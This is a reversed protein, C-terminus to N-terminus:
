HEATHEPLGRQTIEGLHWLANVTLLSSLSNSSIFCLPCLKYASFCNLQKVTVPWCLWVILCRGCLGGSDSWCAFSVPTLNNKHELGFMQLARRGLILKGLSFALLGLSVGRILIVFIYLDMFWFWLQFIQNINSLSSLYLLPSVSAINSQSPQFPLLPLCPFQVPNNRESTCSLQVSHANICM